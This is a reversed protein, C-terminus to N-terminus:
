SGYNSFDTNKYISDRQPVIGSFGRFSDESVLQGLLSFAKVLEVRNGVGTENLANRLGPIQKELAEIGKGANSVVSQYDNGLEQQTQKGWDAVKQSYGQNIQEIARQSFGIGYKAIESAQEQSLGCKKAIASFEQTAQEDAQMGEPIIAAFDYSEPTTNQQNSQNNQQQNNAPPDGLITNQNNNAPNNNNVPPTPNNNNQPENGSPEPNNAPPNGGAPDGGGDGDAFLQLDFNNLLNKNM